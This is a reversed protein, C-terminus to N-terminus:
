YLSDKSNDRTNGASRMQELKASAGQRVFGNDGGAVIVQYGMQRVFTASEPTAAVIGGYKGAKRFAKATAEAAQRLEDSDQMPVNIPLGLSIRMDDPGFFLVDVDDIAAISEANEVAQMTEIQLIIVPNPKLYYDRGEVDIVRRGGYSRNGRPAYRLSQVVGEAQQPTNIMPIMVATPRLDAVKCLVGPDQSYPRVITMVGALEATRVAREVSSFDHLGHQMDIWVFDWGPCMEEIVASCPLMNCLGLLTEGASLRSRLTECQM